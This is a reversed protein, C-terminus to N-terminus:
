LFSQFVMSSFLDKSSIVKGFSTSFSAHSTMRTSAGAPQFSSLGPLIFLIKREDFYELLKEVELAKFYRRNNKIIYVILGRDILNQIADYVYTRSIKVRLAIESALSEDHKVLDLYVEIESDTLGIKKLIEKNM